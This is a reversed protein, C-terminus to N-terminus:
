KSLAILMAKHASLILKETTKWGICKDTISVGYFLEKKRRSIVQNGPSLNSELMIGKINYKGHLRRKLVYNFVVSQKKHDKDSNEHSCDIMIAAPLDHQRLLHNTKKLDEEYYNPRGQGGRLVIHGLKNGDTHIVSPEGNLNIGLFSQPNRASIIANIATQLDGDTGNKFGVPMSLGSAMERHTQSEITRAGIAVWSVLDALYQPIIPELFETAVPLGLKNIALLLKRARILGKNMDNSGDLAPDNILGKWGITTRPKEFYVRMAIFTTAIVKESLKNLKVAYEYAAETDHISCPGAILLLRKDRSNLINTIIQRSKLVTNAQQRDISFEERLQRPTLIPLFAKINLNDLKQM